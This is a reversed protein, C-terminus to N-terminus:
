TSYSYANALALARAGYAAQLDSTYAAIATDLAAERITVADSICPINIPKTSSAVHLDREENHTSTSPSFDHTTTTNSQGGLGFLTLLGVAAAAFWNNM